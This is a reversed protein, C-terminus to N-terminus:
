ENSKIRKQYEEEIERTLDISGQQFNAPTREKIIERCIEDEENESNM